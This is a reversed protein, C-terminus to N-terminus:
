ADVQPPNIDDPYPKIRREFMHVEPQIDTMEYTEGQSEIRATPGGVVSHRGFQNITAIGRSRFNEPSGSVDAGFRNSMEKRSNLDDVSHQGLQITTAMQRSSFHVSSSSSSFIDSNVDTGTQSNENRSNLTWLASIAYIKPLMMGTLLIWLATADLSANHLYLTQCIFNALACLTVPAASQFAIRILRNLIGVAALPAQQSRRLLFYITSGSLIVDGTVVTGFHIPSWIDKATPKLYDGTVSYVFMQGFFKFATHVIASILGFVFLLVVFAVVYINKSIIWLRWCFFAQVSFVIIEGILLNSQSMWNTLFMNAAQNLDMFYENNQFWVLAMAHASKFTTAICLGLVFLKQSLPDSKYYRSWYNTFQAFLIGQLVLDAHTGLDWGGLVFTVVPLPPM